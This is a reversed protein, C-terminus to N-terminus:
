AMGDISPVAREGVLVRLTYSIRRRVNEGLMFVFVTMLSIRSSSPGNKNTQLSATLINKVLEQCTTHIKMPLCFFSPSYHKSAAPHM